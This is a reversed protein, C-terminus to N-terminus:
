ADRGRMKEVSRGAEAPDESMAAGVIERGESESMTTHDGVINGGRESMSTDIAAMEEIGAVMSSGSGHGSVRSGEETTEETRREPARPAIISVITIYTISAVNIIITTSSICM